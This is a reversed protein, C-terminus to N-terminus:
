LVYLGFLLICHPMNYCKRSGLLAMSAYWGM